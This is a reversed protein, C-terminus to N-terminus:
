MCSGNMGNGKDSRSNIWERHSEFRQRRVGNSYKSQPRFYSYRRNVFGIFISTHFFHPFLLVFLQGLGMERGRYFVLSARILIGERAVCRLADGSFWYSEREMWIVGSSQYSFAFFSTDFLRGDWDMVLRRAAMYSNSILDMTHM